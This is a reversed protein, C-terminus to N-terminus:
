DDDIEDIVEALTELPASLLNDKDGLRSDPDIAREILRSPINVIRVTSSLMDSLMSM